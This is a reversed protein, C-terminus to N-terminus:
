QLAFVAGTAGYTGIATPRGVVLEDVGDGDLDSAGVTGDVAVYHGPTSITASAVDDIAWVGASLPTPVVFLEGVLSSTVLEAAGDGDLDPVVDVSYGLFQSVSGDVRIPANAVTDANTVPGTWVFVAGSQYAAGSYNSGGAVLDDLGDGDLDGAATVQGLSMGPAGDLYVDAGSRGSTVSGAYPPRFLSIGGDNNNSSPHGFVLEPLGDGDFDGHVVDAIPEGPIFSAAATVSANVTPAFPGALLYAAATNAAAEYPGVLLELVGDDDVDLGAAYGLTGSSLGSTVAVTASTTDLQGSVGGSWLFVMGANSQVAGNYPAAVALDPLGDGTVDGVAGVWAGLQEVATTAALTAIADDTTAGPAWPGEFLYVKGREVGGVPTDHPAGVALEALGDGDLDGVGAVWLGFSGAQGTHLISPGQELTFADVLADCDDDVGNGVVEGAGPFVSPDLDGCDDGGSEESPYGDRDVDTGDLADCNQDIGDGVVDSASPSVNPDADDCDQPTTWGDRDGDPPDSGDCDQDIGDGPIEPAGLYRSADADDCDDPLGVHNAPAACARAPTAPDGAGDGDLDAYWVPAAVGADADDALSDCDEDGGGSTETASPHGGPAGDDCDTGDAVAGAPAACGLTATGPDGWGDGDLDTFWTAADVADAGDIVLDCDDDFGNCREPEGPNVVALADDCDTDDLVWRPDPGSCGEATQAPDGFGDGDDDLFWAAYGEAAPDDVALDCDDDFGNCRETAGPHVVGSGDDCDGGAAAYGAPPECARLTDGDLGYGDADADRFYPTSGDGDDVVGSCDDDVGNCPDERDPNVTATGDDCDDGGSGLNAHGDGDADVGDELDCDQDVRDGVWDVAGPHIAADGDNCDGADAAFGDGDADGGGCGILAMAVLRSM